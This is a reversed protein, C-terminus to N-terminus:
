NDSSNDDSAVSPLHIVGFQINMVTKQPDINIVRGANTRRNRFDERKRPGLENANTTIRAANWLLSPLSKSILARTCARISDHICAVFDRCPGFTRGRNKPSEFCTRQRDLSFLVAFFIDHRTACKDCLLSFPAKVPKERTKRVSFSHRFHYASCIQLAVAKPHAFPIPITRPASQCFSKTSNISSDRLRLKAVASSEFSDRYPRENAAM